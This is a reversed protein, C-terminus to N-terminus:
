RLRPSRARARRSGDTALQHAYDDGPGGAEIGCLMAKGPGHGHIALVASGPRVRDHPVLLYAPMAM